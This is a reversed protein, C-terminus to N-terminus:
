FNRVAKDRSSLLTLTTTGSKKMNFSQMYLISQQLIQVAYEPNHIGRSGDGLVFALNYGGTRLMQAQTTPEGAATTDNITESLATVIDMGVTDLGATVLESTLNDMLGDIELQLGETTGDGDFDNNAMIDEFDSVTGHCKGCSSTTAEFTHGTNANPYPTANMHCTTCGNEIVYHNTFKGSFEFDFGEYASIGALMDGQPSEHPGFHDYGTEIQTDASRRAHHCQVCLQGNGAIAITQSESNAVVSTVDALTRLQFPNEESHPNHCTSCSVNGPDAPDHAVGGGFAAIFGSGSHCPQCFSNAPAGHAATAPDFNHKSDVWDSNFPHHEGSHCTTCNEASIDVTIARDEATFDPHKSGPGHCNECQVNEFMAIPADDYGANGPVENFDVTHCKNCYSAAHDSSQLTAWAHAHGTEQWEAAKDSHCTACKAGGVYFTDTIAAYMGVGINRSGVGIYTGDTIHVAIEYTGADDPAKWTVTDGETKDFKGDSSVWFYKLTGVEAVVDTEATLTITGGVAISDPNTVIDNVVVPIVNVFISDHVTVTDRVTVEVIKETEDTCGGFFLSGLFLLPMTVSILRRLM